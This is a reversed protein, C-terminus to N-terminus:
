IIKRIETDLGMVVRDAAKKVSPLANAVAYSTGSEAFMPLDNINDGFSSCKEKPIDLHMLLRKLAIGKDVGFAIYENMSRDKYVLPLDDYKTKTYDTIKYVPEDPWAEDLLKVHNHYQMLIKRTLPGDKTKLYTIYKGHLAFSDSSFIKNIPFESLTEEKYITNAGDNAIFYIDKEFPAFFKKLEVYTRGSAVAFSVNNSLIYEISSIINRNLTKEGRKLLTGDFDSVILKM